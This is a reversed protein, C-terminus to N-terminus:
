SAELDCTHAVATLCYQAQRWWQQSGQAVWQVLLMKEAARRGALMDCARRGALTDCYATERTIQM